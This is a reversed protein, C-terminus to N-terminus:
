PLAAEATNQINCDGAVVIWPDSPFNQQVLTKIAAAEAARRSEEATGSSAKLHISVVILDNTGPLDIRAWAFGRDNVGTDTDEWSGAARIPWRSIIGNPISYGSERYFSFNTGFAANVM